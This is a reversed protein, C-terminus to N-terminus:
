KNIDFKTKNAAKIATDKILNQPVNQSNCSRIETWLLIFVTCCGAIAATKTWTNNEFIAEEKKKIYAWYSIHGNYRKVKRGLETLLYYEQKDNAKEIYGERELFSLILVISDHSYLTTSNSTKIKLKKEKPYERVYQIPLFVGYDPAKSLIFDSIKIMGENTEAM